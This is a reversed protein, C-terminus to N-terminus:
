KKKNDLLVKIDKLFREETAPFMYASNNKLMKKVAVEIEGLLSNHASFLLSEIKNIIVEWEFDKIGSPLCYILSTRIEQRTKEETKSTKKSM